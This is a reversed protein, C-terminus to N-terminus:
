MPAEDTNAPEFSEPKYAAIELYQDNNKQQRIDIWLVRGKAPATTNIPKGTAEAIKKLNARAINSTVAQEHWCNYGQTYTLGKTEKQVSEFTLLLIAPNKPNEPRELKKEGVILVKHLGIGLGEQVKDTDIDGYIDDNYNSEM